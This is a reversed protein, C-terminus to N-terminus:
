NDGLDPLAGGMFGIIDLVDNYDDGTPARGAENMAADKDHVRKVLARFRQYAEKSVTVVDSSAACVTQTRFAARHEAYTGHKEEAETRMIYIAHEMAHVQKDHCEAACSLRAFEIADRSNPAFTEGRSLRDQMDAFRARTVVIDMQAASITRAAVEMCDNYFSDTDIDAVDAAKYLKAHKAHAKNSLMWSRSGRVYTFALGHDAAIHKATATNNLTRAM